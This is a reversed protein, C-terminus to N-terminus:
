GDADYEEVDTSDREWGFNSVFSCTIYKGNHRVSIADRDVPFGNAKLMRRIQRKAEVPKRSLEFTGRLLKFTWVPHFEGREVGQVGFGAALCVQKFQAHHFSVDSVCQYAAKKLLSRDVCDDPFLDQSLASSSAWRGLALVHRVFSLVEPGFQGGIV